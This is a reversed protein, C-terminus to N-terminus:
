FSDFLFCSSISVSHALGLAWNNLSWIGCPRRSDADQCKSVCGTYSDLIGIPYFFLSTISTPGCRMLLTSEEERKREREGTFVCARQCNIFILQYLIFFDHISQKFMNTLIDICFHLYFVCHFAM